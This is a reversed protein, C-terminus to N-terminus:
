SVPIYTDVSSANMIANLHGRTKIRVKVGLRQRKEKLDIPFSLFAIWADMLLFLSVLM